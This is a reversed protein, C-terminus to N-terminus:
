PLRLSYDTLAFVCLGEDLVGYHVIYAQIPGNSEDPASWEVNVAQDMQPIAVVENPPTGPGSVLIELTKQDSGANNEAYCTVTTDKVVGRLGLQASHIREAEAGVSWSISPAPNGSASCRVSFDSLPEITTPTTPHSLTIQPAIEGSGTTLRHSGSAPGESQDNTASVRVKYDHDPLINYRTKDLTVRGTQPNQPDAAVIVKPWRQKYNDDGEAPDEPVFYVTYTQM